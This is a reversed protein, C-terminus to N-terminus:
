FLVMFFVMCWDDLLSRGKVNMLVVVVLVLKVM